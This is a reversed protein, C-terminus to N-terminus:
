VYVYSGGTMKLYSLDSSPLSAHQAPSGGLCMANGAPHPAASALTNQLTLRTSTCGTNLSLGREPHAPRQTQAFAHLGTVLVWDLDLSNEEEELNGTDMM